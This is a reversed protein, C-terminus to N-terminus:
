RSPMIRRTLRWPKEEKPPEVAKEEEAELEPTVIVIAALMWFPEMIRVIIFTNATLAHTTMALIGAFFGLALGRFFPDRTTRYVKWTERYIRWLLYLFATFGVLGTELLVKLFQADVFRWGQVGYGFVPHNPFDQFATRWMKLRASSSTDFTVGGIEEQQEMAWRNQERSFTYLVREKVAKPAAIPAIIVLVALVFMLFLKRPSLVLLAFYTVTTAIWTARSQTFLIPVFIMGCLCLLSLRYTRTDERRACLYLTMAVTFILLLYGGLTNPEGSDGEFPAAIREGSPIQAMAVLCVIACTLFIAVLYLKAQRKTHLNNIIMFYVIYYEIYKLVFFFGTLSRVRGFMFGLGTSFICSLLYGMIPRNLPTSRFLGVGKYLASRALQSFGILVLLFDEMRLTVGSGSTERSGFEPSLLSAFILVYIAIETSVFSLVFLTIGGLVAFSLVYPTEAVLFGLGLTLCLLVGFIALLMPNRQGLLSAM